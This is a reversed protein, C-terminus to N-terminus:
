HRAVALGPHRPYEYESSIGTTPIATTTGNQAHLTQNCRHNM